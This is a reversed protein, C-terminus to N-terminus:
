KKIIEFRSQNWHKNSCTIDFVFNVIHKTQHKTQHIKLSVNDKVIEGNNNLSWKDGIKFIVPKINSIEALRIASNVKRSQYHTLM